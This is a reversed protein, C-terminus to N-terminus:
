KYEKGILYRWAAVYKAAARPKQSQIYLYYDPSVIILAEISVNLVLKIDKHMLTISSNEGLVVEFRDKYLKITADDSLPKKRHKIITSVIQHEEEFVLEDPSNLVRQKWENKQWKDWDLITGFHLGTGTDHFFGDFKMEVKYGCHDCTLYNGSSHLGGVAKCEPCMYLIREVCEALRKGKYEKKQKKQFEYDNHYIDRAIAENVEEVSMRALEEPSYERVVKGHVPGRRIKRAWKPAHMYGGTLKFTILAGGSDKVLKGTRPSFFGTEGNPTMAGEAYISVPIGQKISAIVQKNLESTPLERHKVIVGGLKELVIDTFKSRALHDSIVFRIYRRFAILEYGPDMGDAHNGIVIFAKHKPKYPEIKAHCYKLAIWGFMRRISNVAFSRLRYKYNM